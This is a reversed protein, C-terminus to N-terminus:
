MGASAEVIRGRSDAFQTFSQRYTALADRAERLSAQGEETVRLTLTDIAALVDSMGMEWDALRSQDNDLSYNLESDRVQALKDRLAASQELLTLHETADTAQEAAQSLADLQDLFVATFSESAVRATRQMQMRAMQLQRLAEAYREFEQLYAQAVPALKPNKGLAGEQLQAVTTQVQTAFREDLLLAFDKEAIRAQLVRAQVQLEGRLRESRQQLSGISTFATIAVGATLLLVLGFGLWLKAGVSLNGLWRTLGSM